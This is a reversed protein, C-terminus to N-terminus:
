RRARAGANTLPRWWTWRWRTAVAGFSEMQRGTPRDAAKLDVSMVGSRPRAFGAIEPEVGRRADRARPRGLQLRAGQMSSRRRQPTARHAGGPARQRSVNGAM